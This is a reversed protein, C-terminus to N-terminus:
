EGFYKKRIEMLDRKFQLFAKLVIKSEKVGEDLQLSDYDILLLSNKKSQLTSLVYVPSDIKGKLRRYFAENVEYNFLLVNAKSQKSEHKFTKGGVKTYVDRDNKMAFLIERQLFINKVPLRRGEVEKVKKAKAKKRDLLDGKQFETGVIERQVLEYIKRRASKVKKASVRKGDQNQYYTRGKQQYRVFYYEKKNEKM